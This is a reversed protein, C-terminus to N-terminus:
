KDVEMEMLTGLPKFKYKREFAKPRQTIFYIKACRNSNAIKKIAKLLKEGNGSAFLVYLCLGNSQERFSWCLFSDEDIWHFNDLICKRIDSKSDSCYKALRDVHQELTVKLNM